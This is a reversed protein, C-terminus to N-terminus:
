EFDVEFQYMAMSCMGRLKGKTKELPIKIEEVGTQKLYSQYGIDPIVLASSCDYTGETRVRIVTEVGAKAKTVRPFYGGRATIDIYQVGDEVVAEAGAIGGTNSADIDAPFSNNRSMASIGILLGVGLIIVAIHKTQM